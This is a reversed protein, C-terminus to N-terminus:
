RLERAYPMSTAAGARTVSIAAARGARHMAEALTLDRALGAALNGVFCDGAGTTDVVDVREGDIRIIGEATVALAGRPGLTVIVARDPGALCQAAAIIENETRLDTRGSAGELETENLVLIDTLALLSPMLAKMPAPNLITRAGAARAKRFGAEIFAEPVEFQALVCDSPTMRLAETDRPELVANAGPVVIISNEGLADLAILAIGTPVGAVLRLASLDLAEGDLFARMAAGFSDDGIAGVLVTEAGARRAAVAQNAGKGGPFERLNEGSVTEGPRPHNAVSVVLDRNISGFVVVRGM